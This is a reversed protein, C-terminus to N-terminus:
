IPPASILFFQLDNMGHPGVVGGLLKVFSEYTSQHFWTRGIDKKGHTSQHLHVLQWVEPAFGKWFLSHNPAVGLNRLVTTFQLNSVMSVM